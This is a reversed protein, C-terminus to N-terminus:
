KEDYASFFAVSSMAIRVDSIVVTCDLSSVRPAERAVSLLRLIEVAADGDKNLARPSGSPFRFRSADGSDLPSSAVATLDSISVAFGAITSGHPISSM